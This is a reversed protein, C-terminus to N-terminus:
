GQLHPMVGTAFMEMNRKSLEDNLTGFQLLPVFTGLGAKEQMKELGARVTQATGVLATGKAILGEITQYEMGVGARAAMMKKM